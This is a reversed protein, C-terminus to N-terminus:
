AAVGRKQTTTTPRSALEENRKTAGVESRYRVFLEILALLLAAALLWPVLPTMKTIPPKIASTPALKEPGQFATMFAAPIPAFDHATGCPQELDNLFREFDPRLIADGETPMSVSLSRTCRDGNLVELAAPTGDVWRAYIRTNSDLPAAPVWRRVFPYVLVADGARVAGVTDPHPNAKWLDTAGSDAWQIHPVRADTGAMLTSDSATTVQVTHIHGPWLARLSSTAADREENAFPSVVILDLSDASNRVRAAARLATILAPSLSGRRVSRSRSALANISDAIAQQPVEHAVSDFLVVAAAGKAYQQASDALEAMNGVSRSADVVVLRAVKQHSPTLQPQAFAAGILMIALVRLLLLFLDSPRIALSTSRAPVDPVFRVTPLLESRPQQTILFHLVVVGLSVAGAAILFGPALFTM